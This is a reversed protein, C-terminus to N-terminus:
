FAGGELWRQLLALSEKPKDFPAMHGAGYITAFALGNASRWQGAPQGDVKWDQLETARYASSGSWELADTWRQTGPWNCVFDYAGNYALVRVGRELLSAVYDYSVRFYDASEHFAMSETRSCSQFPGRVAPDVGLEDQTSNLSLYRIFHSMQKGYCSSDDETRECPKTVDYRNRGASSYPAMMEAQCFSYAAICGMKDFVDICMSQLGKLCRPLAQKMRVCTSIPTVPMVGPATTCQIDYFGSMLASWDVLGNGLM